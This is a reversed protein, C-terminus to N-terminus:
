RDSNRSRSRAGQPRPSRTKTAPPRVGLDRFLAGPEPEAHADAYGHLYALRLLAAVTGVSLPGDGDVQGAWLLQWVDALRPDIVVEAKSALARPDAREGQDFTPETM